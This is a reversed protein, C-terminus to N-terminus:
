PTRGRVVASRNSKFYFYPWFMGYFVSVEVTLVRFSKRGRGGGRNVFDVVTTPVLNSAGSAGGVGPDSLTRGWLMFFLYITFPKCNALHASRRSIPSVNITLFASMWEASTVSVRLLICHKWQFTMFIKCVVIIVKHYAVCCLLLGNIKCHISTM